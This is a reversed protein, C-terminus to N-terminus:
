FGCWANWGIVEAWGVRLKEDCVQASDCTTYVGAIGEDLGLAM